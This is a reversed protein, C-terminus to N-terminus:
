TFLFIDIVGSQIFIDVDFKAPYHVPCRRICCGHDRSTRYYLSNDCDSHYYTATVVKTGFKTTTAPQAVPAVWFNHPGRLYTLLFTGNIYRM